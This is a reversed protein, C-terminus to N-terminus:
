NKLKRLTPFGRKGSPVGEQFIIKMQILQFLDHFEKKKKLNTIEKIIESRNELSDELNCDIITFNDSFHNIYFLDGNNVSFSKVKSM